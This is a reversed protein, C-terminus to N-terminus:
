LSKIKFEESEFINYSEFTLVGDKEMNYRDEIIDKLIVSSGKIEDLKNRKLFRDFRKSGPSLYKKLRSPRIKWKIIYDDVLENIIKYYKNADERTNISMNTKEKSDM